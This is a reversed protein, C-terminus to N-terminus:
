SVSGRVIQLVKQVYNRTEAFPPIGQYRDVVKEGANYAALALELKGYRAMLMKLHQIGAEVNQLPDYPNSVSYKRATAPMLQMLGQAGRPSVANPDFNSEVQVVAAVLKWDVQHKKALSVVLEAYAFQPPPVAATEPEKAVVGQPDTPSPRIERVWDLPIGMEGRESLILHVTNGEVSYSRIRMTKGSELVVIEASLRGCVLISFVLFLLSKRFMGSNYRKEAMPAFSPGDPSPFARAQERDGAGRATM